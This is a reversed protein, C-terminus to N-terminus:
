SIKRLNGIQVRSIDLKKGRPLDDLTRDNSIKLTLRRIKLRHKPRSSCRELLIKLELPRAPATDERWGNV